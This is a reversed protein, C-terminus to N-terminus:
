VSYRYRSGPSRVGPALCWLKLIAAYKINSAPQTDDNLAAAPMFLALIVKLQLTVPVGAVVILATLAVNKFSM